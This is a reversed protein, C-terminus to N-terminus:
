RRTKTNVDRIEYLLYKFTVSATLYDTDTNTVNFDLTSLSIPFMDEFVVDFNSMNNNNLVQLTGDSTKADKDNVGITSNSKMWETRENYNDPTGLARIWNHIEMYNRLDEDVIFDLTLESYNINGDIPIRVLGRTPIDINGLSIEPINARQCLFSVKRAKELLFIFGIPSLFNKNTLQDQYWNAM